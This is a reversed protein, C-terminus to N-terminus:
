FEFTGRRTNGSGTSVVGVVHGTGDVPFATSGKVQFYLNVSSTSGGWGTSTVELEVDGGLFLATSNNQEVGNFFAGDAIGTTSGVNTWAGTTEYTLDGSSSFRTRNVRITPDVTAGVDNEVQFRYRIPLGIGSM